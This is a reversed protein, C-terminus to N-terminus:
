WSDTLYSPGALGRRAGARDDPPRTRPPSTERTPTPRGRSRIWGVAATVVPRGDPPRLDLWCMGGSRRASATLETGVPAPRLYVLRYSAPPPAVPGSGLAALAEDVYALLAANNAHGLPDVDRRRVTLRVEGPVRASDPPPRVALPEFSPVAALRTFVDPIRTPRGHEDTLAWDTLSRALERGEDASRVTTLRRALVRRFGVIETRVIAEDGSPPPDLLTLEAARVLWTLGREAYWDRGFGLTTSHLWAADQAWALLVAPHVRGDASAEDFRVRYRAEFAIATAAATRDSM